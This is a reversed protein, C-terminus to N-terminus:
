QNEYQLHNKTKGSCRWTFDLKTAQSQRISVMRSNGAVAKSKCECELLSAMVWNFILLITSTYLSSNSEM